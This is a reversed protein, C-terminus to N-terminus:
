DFLCCLVFCGVQCLVLYNQVMVVFIVCDIMEFEEGDELQLLEVLKCWGWNVWLKVIGVVVCIMEVVEEYFFGLVGVFILVECQEDFLKEFVNCFDNLVFCGDYEFCSVQRVVYIGDIDSVECWIKCCVFYFINCLIMFLWVCLNIGFQFKDIYMWVKVIIDQVLDDVGVSEWMLLLVFVCLVFLYDVFENWFDGYVLDNM